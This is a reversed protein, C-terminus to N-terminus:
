QLAFILIFISAVAAIALNRGLSNKDRKGSAITTEQGIRLNEEPISLKGVMKGQSSEKGSVNPILYEFESEFDGASPIGYEDKVINFKAVHNRSYLKKQIFEGKPFIFLSSDADNIEIHDKLSDGLNFYVDLASLSSEDGTKEKAALILHLIINNGQTLQPYYYFTTGEDTKVQLTTDYKIGVNQYLLASEALYTRASDDNIEVTIEGFNPQIQSFLSASMLVIFLNSFMKKM